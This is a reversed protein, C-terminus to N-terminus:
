LLTQSGNNQDLPSTDNTQKKQARKRRQECLRLVYLKQADDFQQWNFREERKRFCGICYGREGTQCIGQCPNPVDFLHLQDHNQKPSM